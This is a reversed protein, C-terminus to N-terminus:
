DFPEDYYSNSELYLRGKAYDFIVNFRSLLGNGIVGDAGKQKSRVQAPAFATEVDQLRFSGLKFSEVKGKYGYVDGSLGTGLHTVELDEPLEFKMDEKMLLEVAEGSALDIYVSMPIEKEGEMDITVEIWPILNEKFTIPVWKKDQDPHFRAPDHLLILMRDYDIEVTYRGFLSYGTVGDSPLGEMTDSQLIIVRQDTFEKQGVFFSASDAMIATSPAGSGAGPVKVEIANELAIQDTLQKDYLLLGEFAMGTDLVIKLEPSDNVRVPLIVRNRELKFPIRLYAESNSPPKESDPQCSCICVASIVIFAILYHFRSMLDVKKGLFPNEEGPGPDRDRNM